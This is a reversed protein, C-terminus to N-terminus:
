QLQLGCRREKNPHRIGDMESRTLTDTAMWSAGQPHRKGHVEHTCEVDLPNPQSAVSAALSGEAATTDGDRARLLTPWTLRPLLLRWRANNIHWHAEIRGYKNQPVPHRLVAVAKYRRGHHLRIAMHALLWRTSSGSGAYGLQIRSRSSRNRQKHRNELSCM